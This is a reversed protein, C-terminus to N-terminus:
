NINREIYLLNNMICINLKQSIDKVTYQQKAFYLNIITTMTIMLFLITTTHNVNLVLVEKEM